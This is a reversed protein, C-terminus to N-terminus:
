ILKPRPDLNGEEDFAVQTIEGGNKLRAVGDLVQVGDYQLEALYSGQRNILGHNAGRKVVAVNGEFYPRETFHPTIVLQGATDSLGWLDKTKVWYMQHAAPVMGQYDAEVLVKGSHDMLGKKGERVVLLTNELALIRQYETKCIEEGQQDVVGYVPLIPDGGEVLFLSDTLYSIKAPYDQILFKGQRNILSWGKEGELRLIDGERDWSISKYDKPHGFLEDNGWAGYTSDARRYRYMGYGISAFDILEDAVPEAYLKDEPAWLSGLDKKYTMIYGTSDSDLAILVHDYLAPFWEGKGVKYIGKRGAKEFVYLGLDPQSHGYLYIWDYKLPVVVDGALNAFGWKGNDNVSLVQSWGFPCVFFLSLITLIRKM